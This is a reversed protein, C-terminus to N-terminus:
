ARAVNPARALALLPDPAVWRTIPIRGTDATISVSRRARDAAISDVAVIVTVGSRGACGTTFRRALLRAAGTM